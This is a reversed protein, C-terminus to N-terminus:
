VGSASELPPLSVLERLARLASQWTALGEATTSLLIAREITSMRSHLHEEFAHILTQAITDPPIGLDPLPILVTRLSQNYSLSIASDIAQRLVEASPQNRVALHVVFSQRLNGGSTITADGVAIPASERMRERLVLGGRRLLGSLSETLNTDTFHWVGDAPIASWDSAQVTHLMTHRVRVANPYPTLGHQAVWGGIQQFVWANGSDTCLLKITPIARGSEAIAELLTFATEEALARRLDPTYDAIAVVRAGQEQALRLANALATRQLDTDTTYQADYLNPHLITRFKTRGGSTIAIGQPPLPACQLAEEEILGFGGYDRVQKRVGRVMRMTSDTPLILVDASIRHLNTPAIAYLELTQGGMSYTATPRIRTLWPHQLAMRQFRLLM